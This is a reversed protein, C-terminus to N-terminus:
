NLIMEEVKKKADELMKSAKNKLDQAQSLRNKLEQAIKNQKDMDVLPLKIKRLDEPYIHSTQGRKERNILQHYEDLRLIALLYYPNVQNTSPRICILEGVFTIDRKRLSEPIEVLCPNKGLYEAQHASSLLLIDNDKLHKNLKKEKSYSLNSWEIRNKKLCSVKVIPKGEDTYKDKAPTNGNFVNESIDALSVTELNDRATRLLKVFKPNYYYPDQRSNELDQSNVIYIKEEMTEAYKIGLQQRVYINISNLLNTAQLEKKLKLKRAEDINQIVKKQIELPPIIVKISSVETLNLEPRTTKNGFRFVQLRGTNTNLFECIYKPLVGDKVKIKALHSTINAKQIQRPLVTANGISGAKTLVVDDPNVESRILEQHKKESIYVFDEELLQGEKIDKVRIIPIGSDQYENVKLQSGFPGDVIKDAIEDLRKVVCRSQSLKKENEIYEPRYFVPDLRTTIDQSNILIIQM